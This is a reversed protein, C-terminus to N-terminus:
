PKIICPKKIKTFPMQNIQFYNIKNKIIKVIELDQKDANYVEPNELTLYLRLKKDLIFSYLTSIRKPNLPLSKVINLDLNMQYPNNIKNKVLLSLFLDHDSTKFMEQFVKRSPSFKDIKFDVELEQNPDFHKLLGIIKRNPSYNNFWNKNNVVGKVEGLIKNNQMFNFSVEDGEFLFTKHLHSLNFQEIIDNFSKATHVEFDGKLWYSLQSIRDIPNLYQSIPCMYLCPYIKDQKIEIPFKLGKSLALESAEFLCSYEDVFENVLDGLEWYKRFDM